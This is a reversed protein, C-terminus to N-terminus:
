KFESSYYPIILMEGAKLKDPDSISNISCIESLYDSVSSYNDDSYYAAAISGLTDDAHVTITTYYKYSPVFEDSQADSMFSAGIFLVIFLILSFSLGLLLIQRRFIKQRRLRNNRIRKESKSYYWSDSYLDEVRAARSM